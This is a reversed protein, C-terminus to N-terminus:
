YDGPNEPSDAGSPQVAFWVGGQGQGNAQGPQSDGAFRYLPKGAFTVQLRGDPRAVTGITAAVGSPPALAVGGPAIVPPWAEACEGTCQIQGDSETKLEYLTFGEADVLVSGLGSVEATGLAARQEDGPGAPTAEGCAALLAITVGLALLLSRGRGRVPGM